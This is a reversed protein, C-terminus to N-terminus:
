TTSYCHFTVSIIFAFNQLYNTQVEYHQVFLSLLKLKTNYIYIYIYKADKFILFINNYFNPLIGNIFIILSCHKKYVIITYDLIYGQIHTAKRHM